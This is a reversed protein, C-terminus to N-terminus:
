NRTARNNTSSASQFAAVVAAAARAVDGASRGPQFLDTGIGFGDVGARVWEALNRSGVGGVAYVRVGPPLVARLAQLHSTGYTAAPFLKLSTAGAAIADFAETATAFGPMVTLGLSLARRIVRADTNPSVILSGGSAHVDDVQSSDLVTGAGCLCQSGFTQSLQQISELAHPSNLPVEITRIGNDILARGIDVVDDPTVGRLIAILPSLEPV